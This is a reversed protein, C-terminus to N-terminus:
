NESDESVPTNVGSRRSIIRGTDDFIDEAYYSGHESQWVVSKVSLWRDDIHPLRYEQTAQYRGEADPGVCSTYKVGPEDSLKGDKFDILTTGVLKSYSLEGGYEEGMDGGYSKYSWMDPGASAHVSTTEFTRFKGNGRAITGMYAWTGEDLKFFDQLCAAIEAESQAPAGPTTTAANQCASTMLLATLSIALKNTM